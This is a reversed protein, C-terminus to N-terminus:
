RRLPPTDTKKRVGINETDLFTGPVDCSRVFVHQIFSSISSAFFPPCIGFRKNLCLFVSKPLVSIGSRSLLRSLFYFSVCLTALIRRNEFPFDM